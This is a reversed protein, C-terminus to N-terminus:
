GNAVELLQQNVAQHESASYEVWKRMVKGTKPNKVIDGDKNIKPANIMLRLDRYHEAPTTKKLLAIFNKAAEPTELEHSIKKPKISTFKEDCLANFQKIYEGECFIPTLELEKAVLKKVLTLTVGDVRFIGKVAKVKM